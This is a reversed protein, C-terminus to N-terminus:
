LEVIEYEFACNEGAFAEAEERTKFTMNEDGGDDKMMIGMVYDGNHELILYM